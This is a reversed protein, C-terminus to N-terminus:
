CRFRCVWGGWGFDCRDWLPPRRGPAITPLVVLDDFPKISAVHGALPIPSLWPHTMRPVNVISAVFIKVSNVTSWVCAFKCSYIRAERIGACKNLNQCGSTLLSTSRQSWSPARFVGLRIQPTSWLQSALRCRKVPLHPPPQLEAADIASAYFISPCTRRVRSGPPNVLCRQIKPETSNASRLQFVLEVSGM